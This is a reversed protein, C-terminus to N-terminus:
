LLEIKPPKRKDEHLYTIPQAQVGLAKNLAEETTWIRGRKGIFYKIGQKDLCLAIDASKTYGTSQELYEQSIIGM